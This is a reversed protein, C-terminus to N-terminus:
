GGCEALRAPRLGARRLAQPYRASALYAFERERADTLPDRARLEADVRGPHVHVLHRAGAQGLFREMLAGFDVRGSFDHLGSFGRNSAMGRAALQRGLPGALLTIFASKGVAVRRRLCRALPERCDRVWVRGPAYRREIEDLLPGRVGPLLHVHQHGDVYDPADGWADEFADLQARLEDVLGARPLRRALATALLRPLAPLRGACAIGAARSLPPQDTLTLHLGIDAPRRAVVARLGPARSRWDPLGSMCSTASLRGSALLAEIADCVGPALGYDDACVVIPRAGAPASLEQM